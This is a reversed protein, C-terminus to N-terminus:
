PRRASARAQRRFASASRKGLLGCACTLSQFCAACASASRREAAAAVMEGVEPPLTEPSHSARWPASIARAAGATHLAGFAEELGAVPQDPLQRAPPGLRSKAGVLRLVAAARAIRGDVDRAKGRRVRAAARPEDAPRRVASQAAACRCGRSGATATATMSLGRPAARSRHPRARCRRRRARYTPPRGAARRRRGRGSGGPRSPAAKPATSGSMQHASAPCGGEAVREGPQDPGERAPLVLGRTERGIASAARRRGARATQDREVPEAAVADREGIGRQRAQEEAAAASWPPPSRGRGSRSGRSRCGSWGPDRPPRATETPRTTIVLPRARRLGNRSSVSALTSSRGTSTGVDVVGGGEAGREVARRPRRPAPSGRRRRGSRRGSPSPRRARDRGRRRAVSLEVRGIRRRASLSSIRLAICASAAKLAPYPSPTNRIAGGAARILPLPM